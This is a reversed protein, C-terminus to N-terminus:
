LMSLQSVISGTVTKVKIESILDFTLELNKNNQGTFTKVAQKVSEKEPNGFMDLNM